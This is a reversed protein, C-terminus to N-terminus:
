RFLSKKIKGVCWAGMEREAAWARAEAESLHTTSKFGAAQYRIRASFSSQALSVELRPDWVLLGGRGLGQFLRTPVPSKHAGLGLFLGLTTNEGVHQSM